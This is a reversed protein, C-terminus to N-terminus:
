LEQLAMLSSSRKIGMKKAIQIAWGVFPDAIICTCKNNDKKNITEILEEFKSPMSQLMSKALKGWDNRDEWPELEDPISVMQLLSNHGNKELWTSTVVKQHIAETNVFTVKIVIRQALEMAPIVHGQAPNAMVVAHYKAM